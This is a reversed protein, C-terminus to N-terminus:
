SFLAVLIHSPTRRAVIQSEGRTEQRDTHLGIVAQVWRAAFGGFVFFLSLKYKQKNQYWVKRPFRHLYIVYWLWQLFHWDCYWIIAYCTGHVPVVEIGVSPVNYLLLSRTVNQSQKLHPRGSYQWALCTNIAYYSCKWCAPNDLYGSSQCVTPEISLIGLVNRHAELVVLFVLDVCAVKSSKAVAM